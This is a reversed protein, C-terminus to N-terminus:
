GDRLLVGLLDRASSKRLQYVKYATLSLIVTDVFLMGEWAIAIGLPFNSLIRFGLRPTRVDHDSIVCNRMLILRDGLEQMMSLQEDSLMM